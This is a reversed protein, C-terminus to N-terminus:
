AQKVFPNNFQQLLIDDHSPFTNAGFALKSGTKKKISHMAAPFSNHSRLTSSRNISIATTKRAVSSAPENWVIHNGVFTQFRTYTAFSFDQFSKYAGTTNGDLKQTTSGNDHVSM